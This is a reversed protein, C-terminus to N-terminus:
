PALWWDRLMAETFYSRCTPCVWAAHPVDQAMKTDDIPCRRAREDLSM